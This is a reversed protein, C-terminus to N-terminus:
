GYTDRPGRGPVSRPGHRWSPADPGTVRVSVVSGDGLEENLRAVLNPAMLRMQTAWATSDTRVSLVGGEFREPHSHDAISAGVLRAWNALMVHVGIQTGWGREHVMRGFVDGLAAPSRADDYPQTYTTTPTRRRRRKARKVPAPGAGISAAVRRALDLGGPDHDQEGLDRLRSAQELAADAATDALADPEVPDLAEFREPDTDTM